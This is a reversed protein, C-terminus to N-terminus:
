QRALCAEGASSIYLIIVIRTGRGCYGVFLTKSHIITIDCYTHAACPCYIAKIAKGGCPKTPALCAEGALATRM